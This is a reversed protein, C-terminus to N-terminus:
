NRTLIVRVPSRLHTYSVARMNNPAQGTKQLINDVVWKAEAWSMEKVEESITLGDSGFTQRKYVDKGKRHMFMTRQFNIYNTFM